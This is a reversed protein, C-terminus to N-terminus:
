IWEALNSRLVVIEPAVVGDTEIVVVCHKPSLAISAGKTSHSLPVVTLLEGNVVPM